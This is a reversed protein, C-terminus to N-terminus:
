FIQTALVTLGVLWCYISFVKLRGTNLLKLLVTIAFYGSVASVVTGVAYPVIYANDVGATVLDSVKLVTAGLIVPIVVLFSYRAATDRDLGTLLAASITSGARSIGPTIALSQAFGIVLADMVTMTRSDKKGSALNEAVWLVLGTILLMISVLTVSGFWREFADEFLVGIVGAPIVGVVILWLFRDQPHRLLHLIDKRFYVLVALLTGFHLLVELTVGPTNINMFHQLIVLHGSSSIPLFETIGQLVGLVVAEIVTM